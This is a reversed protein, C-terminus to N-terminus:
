CKSVTGHVTIFVDLTYLEMFVDGRLNMFVVWSYLEHVWLLMFVGRLYLEMYASLYLEM